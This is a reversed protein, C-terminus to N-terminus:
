LHLCGRLMKLTLNWSTQWMYCIKIKMVMCSFQMGVIFNVSIHTSNRNCNGNWANRFFALLKMLKHFKSDLIYWYCPYKKCNPIYQKIKLYRLQSSFDKIWYAELYVLKLGQEGRNLWKLSKIEFTKKKLTRTNVICEEQM